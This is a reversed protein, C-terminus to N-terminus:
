RGPGLVAARGHRGRHRGRHGRHRRDRRRHGRRRHGGGGTGAGAGTLLLDDCAPSTALWAEIDNGLAKVEACELGEIASVCRKPVGFPDWWGEDNPCTGMYELARARTIGLAASGECTLTQDAIARGVDGCPVRGCGALLLPLLLRNM